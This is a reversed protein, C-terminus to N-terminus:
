DYCAFYGCNRCKQTRNGDNTTTIEPNECGCDIIPYSKPKAMTKVKDIANNMQIKMEKLWESDNSSNNLDMKLLKNTFNTKINNKTFVIYLMQKITCTANDTQTFQFFTNAVFINWVCETINDNLNKLHISSM